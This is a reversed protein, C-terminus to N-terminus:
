NINDESIARIDYVSDNIYTAIIYDGDDDTVYPKNDINVIQEVDNIIKNANIKNGIFASFFSIFISLILSKLLKEFYRSIRNKAKSRILIFSVIFGFLLFGM